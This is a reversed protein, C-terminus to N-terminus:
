IARLVLPESMSVAMRIRLRVRMDQHRLLHYQFEAKEGRSLLDEITNIPHVSGAEPSLGAHQMSPAPTTTLAGTAARIGRRATCLWRQGDGDNQGGSVAPSSSPPKHRREADVPCDSRRGFLGDRAPLRRRAGRRASLGITRVQRDGRRQRHPDDVTQRQALGLPQDAGDQMPKPDKTPAPDSWWRGGPWPM